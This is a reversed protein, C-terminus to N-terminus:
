VEEEGRKGKERVGEEEEWRKRGGERKEGEGEEELSVGHQGQSIDLVGRSPPLIRSQPLHLSM